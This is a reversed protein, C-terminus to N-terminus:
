AGAGKSCAFALDPVDEYPVFRGNYIYNVFYCFSMTFKVLTRTGAHSKQVSGGFCRVM